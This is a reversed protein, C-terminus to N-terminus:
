LHNNTENFNTSNNSWWQKFKRKIIRNNRFIFLCFIYEM